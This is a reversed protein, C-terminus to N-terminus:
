GPDNILDSESDIILSDGFLMKVRLFLKASYRLSKVGLISLIKLSLSDTVTSSPGNMELLPELISMGMRDFDLICLKIFTVLLCPSSSIM